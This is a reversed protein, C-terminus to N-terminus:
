KRDACPNHWSLAPSSLRFCTRCVEFRVEIDKVRVPMSPVLALLLQLVMSGALRLPLGVPLPPLRAATWRAVAALRRLATAGAAKARQAASPQARPQAIAGPQAAGDSAASVHTAKAATTPQQLQPADSRARDERKRPPLLPPPPVRLQLEMGRCNLPIRPQFSTVANAVAAATKKATTSRGFSLERLRVRAIPGQTVNGFKSQAM